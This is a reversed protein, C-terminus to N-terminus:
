ARHSRTSKQIQTGTTAKFKLSSALERSAFMMSSIELLISKRTSRGKSNLIQHVQNEPKTPESNGPRKRAPKYTFGHADQLKKSTGWFTKNKIGLRTQIELPHVNLRLYALLRKGDQYSISTNFFKLHPDLAIGAKELDRSIVKGKKLGLERLVADFSCVKESLLETIKELQEKPTSKTNARSIADRREQSFVKGSNGAAIKRKTEESHGTRQYHGTPM